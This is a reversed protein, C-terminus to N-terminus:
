VLPSTELSSWLTRLHTSCSRTLAVQRLELAQGASRGWGLKKYMQSLFFPAVKFM